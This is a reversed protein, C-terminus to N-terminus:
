SMKTVTAVRQADIEILWLPRTRPVDRAAIRDAWEIFVLGDGAALAEWVGSTEVEEESALRYLDFHWVPGRSTQYFNALAFTPSNVESVQLQALMQKVLETKGAGLDGVLFVVANKQLQPVLDAALRATDQLSQLQRQLQPTAGM